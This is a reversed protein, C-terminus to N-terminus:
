WVVQFLKESRHRHGDWVINDYRLNEKVCFSEPVRVHQTRLEHSDEFQGFLEKRFLLVVIPSQATQLAGNLSTSCLPSSSRKGDTRQKSNHTIAMDSEWSILDNWPASQLSFSSDTTIM